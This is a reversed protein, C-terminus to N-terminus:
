VELKERPIRDACPYKGAFCASCYRCRGGPLCEDLAELTLHGLTDAEIFHRLEGLTWKNAALEERTPTDVGYFCPWFIQPSGVRFHVETAGANRLMRVLKRSATGRVISDDVVVVRKGNVIARIPNHKYKQVM